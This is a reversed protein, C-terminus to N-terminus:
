PTYMNLYKYRFQGLKLLVSKKIKSNQYYVM